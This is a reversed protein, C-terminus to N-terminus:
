LTQFRKVIGIGGCVNDHAATDIGEHLAVQQAIFQPHTFSFHFSSFLTMFKNKRAWLFM